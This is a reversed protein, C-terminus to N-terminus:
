IDIQQVIFGLTSGPKGVVYVATLKGQALPFRPVAAAKAKSDALRVVVDYRGAATVVDGQQGNEVPGYQSTFNAYRRNLPFWGLDVVTAPAAAAHRLSIRGGDSPVAALDNVFVNITPDGKADLSAVASLNKGSPVELTKSFIVEDQALVGDDSATPKAVFVDYAAPALELPGAISKYTFDDAILGAKDVPAGAAGAYVDVTTGADDLKLGHVVYVKSPAAQASTPTGILAASAILAALALGIAALQKRM